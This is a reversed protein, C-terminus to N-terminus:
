KLILYDVESPQIRVIKIFKPYTGTTVRIKENSNERAESADIFCSFMDATVKKYDNLAVLYTIKVTEPFLKLRLNSINNRQTIPINIESETFKEVPIILKVQVPDTAFDGPINPKVLKVLVNVSDDLNKFEIHETKIFTITDIQSNLGSISVEAPETRISDYLFHQKRFEYSVDPVVRVKSKAQSEFLFYMTDPYIYFIDGEFGYYEELNQTLAITNIKSEFYRGKRHLKLKSLDIVFPSKRPLYKLAAITYGKDQIKISIMSDVENTLIKGQPPNELRIPFSIETNYTDSLKILFWILTSIALCVVFVTMKYNLRIGKQGSKPSADKM